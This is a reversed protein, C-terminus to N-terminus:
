RDNNLEVNLEVLSLFKSKGFIDKKLVLKKSVDNKLQKIAKLLSVYTHDQPLYQSTLYDYITDDFTSYRNDGHIKAVIPNRTVRGSVYKVIDDVDLVIKM